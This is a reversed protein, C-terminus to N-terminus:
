EEQETKEKSEECCKGAAFINYLWAFLWGCIFGNVFGYVLGIFAGLWSVTYGIYFQELLALTQGGGKLIIWVTSVVVCLGWLIGSAFGFATNHLKM